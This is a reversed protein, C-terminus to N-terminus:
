EVEVLQRLEPVDDAAVHRDDARPRLAGVEDLLELVADRLVHQAVLDLGADGAPRLDVAPAAVGRELLADFVVQIVDLVPRDAEVELDHPEREHTAKLLVGVSALDETEVIDLITMVPAAPKMPDCRDSASSSRPWETTPMSLRNVPDVRFMACRALRSKTNM